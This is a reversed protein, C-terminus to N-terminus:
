EAGSYLNFEEGRLFGILVQGSEKALRVALSSPASIAAVIPIRAALSKQILEFSLRGSVLLISQSLDRGERLSNGIVKDLANHRGVDERLLILEGELSFIASAHLGGTKEFADQKERLKAPLRLIIKPDIEPVRGIPPFSQFVSDITAKGCVGCSSSTFVHRTLESLNPEGALRVNLVNGKEDARSELGVIEGASEIMKESFLFGTALEEDNGPTRMMVAVSQGNVRIELPEERAVFDKEAEGYGSSKQYRSLLTCDAAVAQAIARYDTKTNINSFFKAEPESREFALSEILRKEEAITVLPQLAFNEKEARDQILKLFDERPFVAALPEWREDIRPVVGRKKKKAIEILRSLLESSLLPMDIAFVLVFDASSTSFVTELAGIPGCDPKADDIRTVGDIFDPFNQDPNTSLWIRNPKLELMKGLQLLYLPTGQWQAFAKDEGEGFRRSKGGAILAADFNM